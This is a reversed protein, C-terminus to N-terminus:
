VHARGIEHASAIGALTAWDGSAPVTGLSSKLSAVGTSNVSDALDMKAGVTAWNGSAPITGLGAKLAAIYTANTLDYAGGSINTQTLTSWAATGLYVTNGLGVDTVARAKVTQLDAPLTGSTLAMSDFTTATNTGAILLANPSGPTASPLSNVTGTPASVNFFGQFAAAVHTSTGAISTGNIERMDIQPYYPGSGTFTFKALIANSDAAQNICAGTLSQTAVDFMTTLNAGLRGATTSHFAAGDVYKLDASGRGGSDVTLEYASGVATYFTVGAGATVAQGKITNLDVGVAGSGYGQLIL